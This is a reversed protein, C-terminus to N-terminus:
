KVKGGCLHCRDGMWGPNCKCQGSKPDCVGNSTCPQRCIIPEPTTAVTTEVREQNSTLAAMITDATSPSAEAGISTRFNKSSPHKIAFQLYYM